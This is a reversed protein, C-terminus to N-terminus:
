PARKTEVNIRVLKWEADSPIFDLEFVVRAPETPFSGKVILKGNGDIVPAPDYTPKMAAIIDIDIDKEAFERFTEKLKEPSFQQRFPKSLKAHFVTYNGTVNADNFSLLSTKVLAELGRETPLKNQAQAAPAALLLVVVAVLRAIVQM